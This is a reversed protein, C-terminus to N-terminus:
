GLEFIEDRSGAQRRAAREGDFFQAIHARNRRQSSRLARREDVAAFEDDPEGIM